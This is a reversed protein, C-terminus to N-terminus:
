QNKINCLGSLNNCTYPGFVGKEETLFVDTEPNYKLNNIDLHNMPILKIGQASLVNGLCKQLSLDYEKGISITCDCKNETSKISVIKFTSDNREAYIIYWNKISDIKCITYNKQMCATNNNGYSSLAIVTTIILLIYLDVRKM